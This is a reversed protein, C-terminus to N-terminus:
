FSPKARSKATAFHSKSLVVALSHAEKELAGLHLLAHRLVRLNWEVLHPRDFHDERVVCAVRLAEDIAFVLFLKGSTLHVLYTEESKIRAGVSASSDLSEVRKEEEVLFGVESQKCPFDTRSGFSGRFGRDADSVMREEEERERGEGQQPKVGEQTEGKDGEGEERKGEGEERERGEGQQPKVGEQTEGRDGDGEERKGEGEERERGEGQQPEGGEPTEGGNEEGERQGQEGEESEEAHKGGPRARSQALRRAREKVSGRKEAAYIAKLDGGLEVIEAALEFTRPDVAAADGALCLKLQADFLLAKELRCLRCLRALLERCMESHHFLRQVARSCAQFISADYICTNTVCFRPPASSEPLAEDAARENNGREEQTGEYLSVPPEKEEEIVGLKEDAVANLLQVRLRSEVERAAPGPSLDESGSVDAEAKHLFIEVFLAPNIRWVQKLFATTQSVDTQLTESQIDFVFVLCDARRLLEDWGADEEEFDTGALSLSSAPFSTFSAKTSIFDSIPHPYISASSSGRLVGSPATALPSATAVAGLQVAELVFSGPLVTVVFDLLSGSHASIVEAKQHKGGYNLTKHPPVRQFVVRAISSKGSRPLGAIVLNPTTEDLFRLKDLKNVFLRDLSKLPAAAFHSSFSASPLFSFASSDSPASDSSSSDSSALAALPAASSSSEAPRSVGTEEPSLSATTELFRSALSFRTLSRRERM